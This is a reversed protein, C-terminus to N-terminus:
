EEAGDDEEDDAEADDAADENGDADDATSASDLAMILKSKLKAKLADQLDDDQLLGRTPVGRVADVTVFSIAVVFLLLWLFDTLKTMNLIITALKATLKSRKSNEAVNRAVLYPLGM